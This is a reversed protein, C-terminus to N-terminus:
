KAASVASTKCAQDSSIQNDAEKLRESGCLVKGMLTMHSLSRHVVDRTYITTRKV